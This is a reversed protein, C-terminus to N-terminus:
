DRLMAVVGAASLVLGTVVALWLGGNTDAGQVSTYDAIAGAGLLAVGGAGGLLVAWARGGRWRGVTASGVAVVAAIGLGLTLPWFLQDTGTADYWWAFGPSLFLGISALVVLAVLPKSPRTARRRRWLVGALLLLGGVTVAWAPFYLGVQNRLGGAAAALGIPFGALVPEIAELGPQGVGKTRLAAIVLAVVVALATVISARRISDEWPEAAFVTQSALVLLAGCATLGLPGWRTVGLRTTAAPAKAPAARAPPATVPEPAAAPRAPGPAPRAPAPQAAPITAATEREGALVRGAAAAVRRSDDETLRQLELRAAEAVGADHAGLLRRLERVAGERVGALSSDIASRLEVPLEAAPVPVVYSSRAVYLEGELHSLMNPSQDPTIERVQECVYDYLEEVSIRHDQDRDAEGTELGKVVATTFVSPNGNGTLEEGEFAYEMASSATLIV